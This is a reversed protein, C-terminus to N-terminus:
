RPDVAMDWFAIEAAVVELFVADVDVPGARDAAVELGAVYGAFLPVTWHAVFERYEPAGPRAGSWADLYTREITWLAVLASPVDAPDLRELLEAYRATAPLAPVALDLGRAAARQDFWGLEEVLATVGGALVPQAQRPARALLRAQFRLLDTVFRADQVLWTDFAAAPLTGDRVADLFPHRVARRWEAAHRELLEAVPM